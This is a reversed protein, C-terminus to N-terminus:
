DQRIALVQVTLGAPKSVAYLDDGPGLLMRISGGPDLHLGTATSVSSNGIYVYENSSKTANLLHIEQGNIDASAIKIPTGLSLVYANSTIPM